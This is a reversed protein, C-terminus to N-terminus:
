KSPSSPSSSNGGSVSERIAAQLSGVHGYDRYEFHPGKPRIATFNMRGQQAIALPDVAFDMSVRRQIQASASPWELGFPADRVEM